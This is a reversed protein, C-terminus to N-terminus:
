LIITEELVVPNLPRDSQQAGEKAMKMVLEEGELIRGFVTYQKDFQHADAATIFFQSGSSESEGAKTAAALVGKFHWVDSVEPPITYGPGGTGWAKPNLERSNPDGGQILLDKLVRHFRTGRYYGERCLTLFNEVHRPARDVYLGVVIPGNSTQLQVRPAKDPLNPPGFMCRNGKWQSASTVRSKMEAVLSKDSGEGLQFAGRVLAHSVFESQLQALLEQCRSYQRAQLLVRAEIVKGWPEADSGALQSVAPALDEPRPLQGASLSELDVSALLDNWQGESTSRVSESRVQVYVILSVGVVAVLAAPKWFKAVLEQFFSREALPAITVQTPSKHKSM